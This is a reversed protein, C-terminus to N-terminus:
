CRWGAFRRPRRLTPQWRRLVPHDPRGVELTSPTKEVAPMRGAVNLSFTQFWFMCRSLAVWYSANFGFRGGSWGFAEGSCLRLCPAISVDIAFDEGDTPSPVRRVRNGDLKRTGWPRSCVERASLGLFRLQGSAIVMFAMSPKPYTATVVIVWRTLGSRARNCAQRRSEEKCSRGRRTTAGQWVVRWVCVRVRGVSTELFIHPDRSPM